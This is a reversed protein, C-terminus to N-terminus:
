RILQLLQIAASHFLILGIFMTGPYSSGKSFPQVPVSLDWCRSAPMQLVIYTAMIQLHSRILFAEWSSQTRVLTIGFNFHRKPSHMSRSSFAIFGTLKKQVM